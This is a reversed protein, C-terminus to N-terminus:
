GRQQLHQTIRQAHLAHQLYDSALQVQATGCMFIDIAAYDREPWTHISIHSEQLLLVGTVGQQAGFHHFHSQLVHAGAAAAAQHLIHSLADPDCLLATPSGYCDMLLHEGLVTTM